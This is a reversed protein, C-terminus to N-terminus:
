RLGNYEQFLVMGVTSKTTVHYFLFDRSYNPPTLISTSTLVQAKPFNTEFLHFENRLYISLDRQLTLM